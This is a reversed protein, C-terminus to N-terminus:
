ADAFVSESVSKTNKVVLHRILPLVMCTSWGEDEFLKTNHAHTHQFIPDRFLMTTM